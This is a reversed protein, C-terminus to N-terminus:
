EYDYMSRRTRSEGRLNHIQTNIYDAAHAWQVETPHVGEPDVFYDIDHAEVHRLLTRLAEVNSAHAVNINIETVLRRASAPDPQSQAVVAHAKRTKLANLTIRWALSAADITWRGAHKIATIIGNRAWTRITAVTVGATTAATTTNM